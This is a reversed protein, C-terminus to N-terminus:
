KEVESNHCQFTILNGYAQYLVEPDVPSFKPATIELYM